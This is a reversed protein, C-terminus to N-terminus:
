RVAASMALCLPMGSHTTRSFSPMSRLYTASGATWGFWIATRAARLAMSFAPTSGISM